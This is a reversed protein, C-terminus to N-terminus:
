VARDYEFVSRGRTGARLTYGGGSRPIIALDSVQVLPLPEDTNDGLREFSAGGNYSAYVGLWSAVFLTNANVPHALIRLVPVDLPLGAAALRRWVAGAAGAAFPNNNVLIRAPAGAGPITYAVFLRRGDASFAPSSTYSPIVNPVQLLLLLLLPLLLPLDVSKSIEQLFQPRLAQLQNLQTHQFLCCVLKAPFVFCICCAAAVAQAAADQLCDM